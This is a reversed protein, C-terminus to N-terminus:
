DDEDRDDEDDESDQPIWIWGRVWVGNDAESIDCPYLKGDIEIDDGPYLDVAEEVLADLRTRLADGLMAQKSEDFMTQARQVLQYFDDKELDTSELMEKVQDTLEWLGVAEAEAILRSFQVPDHQWTEMERVGM